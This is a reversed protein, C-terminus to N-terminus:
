CKQFTGDASHFIIFLLSTGDAQFSEMHTFTEQSIKRYYAVIDPIQAHRTFKWYGWIYTTCDHKDYSSQSQLTQIHTPPINMPIDLPFPKVNKKIWTLFDDDYIYIILKFLLVSFIISM